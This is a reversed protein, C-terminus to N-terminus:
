LYIWSRAKKRQCMVRPFLSDYVYKHLTIADERNVYEISSSFVDNPTLKGTGHRVALRELIEDPVIEEDSFKKRMFRKQQATMVLRIFEPDLCLAVCQKKCELEMNVSFYEGSTLAFCAIKGDDVTPVRKSAFDPFFYDELVDLDLIDQVDMPGMRMRADKDILRRRLFDFLVPYMRATYIPPPSVDDASIDMSNNLAGDERALSVVFANRKLDPDERQLLMAENVVFVVGGVHVSIEPLENGLPLIRIEAGDSVSCSCGFMNLPVSM